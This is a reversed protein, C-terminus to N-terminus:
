LAEGYIGFDAANNHRAGLAPETGAAVDRGHIFGVGRTVRRAEFRADIALAVRMAQRGDQVRHGLDRDCGDVAGCRSRAEADRECAIKPDRRVFGLESGGECFYAETSVEADCPRERADYAFAFGFLEHEQGVDQCGFL